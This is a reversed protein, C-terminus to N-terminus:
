GCTISLSFLIINPPYFVAPQTNAIFPEGVASHPLWLPLQRTLINKAINGAFYKWPYVVYLDDYFALMQDPYLIVNWFFVCVSLFLFIIYVLDRKWEQISNSYWQKLQMRIISAKSM